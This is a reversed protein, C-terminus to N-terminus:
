DTQVLGRDAREQTMATPKVRGAGLIPMHRNLLMPHDFTKPQNQAAEAFAMGKM